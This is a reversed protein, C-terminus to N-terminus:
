EPLATNITVGLVAGAGAVLDGLDQLAFVADLVAPRQEELLIAQDFPSHLATVQAMVAALQAVLQEGLAPDAAALLDDVGAGSIITGDSRTYEGTLV